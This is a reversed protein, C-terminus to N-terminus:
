RTFCRTIDNQPATIAPPDSGPCGPLTVHLMINSLPDGQSGWVTAVISGLGQGKSRQLTMIPMLWRGLVRVKVGRKGAGGGEEGGTAIDGVERGGGGM